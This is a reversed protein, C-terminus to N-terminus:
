QFAESLVCWEQFAESFPWGLCQFLDLVSRVFYWSLLFVLRLSAGRSFRPLCSYREAAVVIAGQIDRQRSEEMFCGLHFSDRSWLCDLVNVSTVPIDVAFVVLLTTMVCLIASVEEVENLLSQPFSFEM